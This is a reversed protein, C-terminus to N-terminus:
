WVHWKFELDALPTLYKKQSFYIVQYARVESLFSFVLHEM